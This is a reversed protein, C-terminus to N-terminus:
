PQASPANQAALYEILDRLDRRSLLKALDTPMASLGPSREVIKAKLVSTTTGDAATLLLEDDTERQVIGVLLQGDDTEAITTEFGKAITRSPELLAELLQPRTLRRGVDGLEPGVAGGQGGVKHCRVCQATVNKQFIERGREVDGGALLEHHREVLDGASRAAELTALRRSLEDGGRSGAAELLDLEIEGAAKGAALRELWEALLRTAAPHDISALTRCASQRDTTEGRELAAALAPVAQEPDLGALIRRAEARVASQPDDQLPVVLDLAAPDPLQALATLAAVRTTASRERSQALERLPEILQAAADGYDAITVGLSRLGALAAGAIADSRDTALGSGLLAHAAPQPDRADLPRWLGVAWDRGSPQAWDALLALVNARQGETTPGSRGAALEVLRRANEPKGLRFNANLVRLVISPDPEKWTLEALAPLAEPIPTDNIARAAEAVLRPDSDHLFRAVRASAARRMVLLAGMRVAPDKDDALEDLQAPSALESLATVGAHRLYADRDANERLANVIDGVAQANGLKGLAMAAEFRVRADPDRTLERLRAFAPEFRLDGLTKATQARLAPNEDGLVDVLPELVDAQQRALQGLGWVAHLRARVEASADLAVRQLTASSYIGRAALEFQAEQRVRRDAHALLASLDDNSKGSWDTALLGAVDAAGQRHAPDYFRYLRGRKPLDWGEVWDSVYFAGDPGFEVDTALLSWVLQNDDIVEFSAGRPKLRFSRVGSMSDTGRFDCMLFRGAMEPGFGVGPYAALGSPGDGLNLLPPLHYAAREASDPQWLLEGNWPGRVVPSTIFQYGIRWGSDGGEVVHVIRAKDGGDSNNDGTFLNGFDDFALEQPNRLGRAFLELESGDPWCRLVAGSDACDIVGRPTEVRLGRDGISFYLRGDPGWTLGHLDHGIFGVHLGYGTQLSRREEAVGDGDRDELLWLDPICTYWVQGRRALLGAGLGVAADNFGDALVSDSDARGDGDRDEVLRVRDHETTYAGFQDGLHKRYMAVRDAVTKCALDDDLWDMHGRIDTVGAHLRFTEAVYFRGREDITFAVPNALRPEAAFLECKLGPALKFRAIAREGQDSAPEIPPAYPPSQANAFEVAALCAILCVVRM